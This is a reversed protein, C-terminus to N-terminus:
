TMADVLARPIPPRKLFLIVLSVQLFILHCILPLQAWGSLLIRGDICSFSVYYRHGFSQFFTCFVQFTIYVTIDYSNKSAEIM